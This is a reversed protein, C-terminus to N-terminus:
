LVPRDCSLIRFEKGAFCSCAFPLMLSCIQAAGLVSRLAICSALRAVVRLSSASSFSFWPLRCLVGGTLFLSVVTNKGGQM